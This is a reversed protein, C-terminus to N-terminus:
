PPAPLVPPDPARRAAFLLRRRASGDDWEVALELRILGGPEATVQWSLRHPGIERTGPAPRETQFLSDLVLAAARAAEEGAHARRLTAAAHAALAAAGLAGAALIALAAILEILTAGRTM